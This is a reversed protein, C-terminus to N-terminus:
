ISWLFRYHLKIAQFRETPASCVTTIEASTNAGFTVNDVRSPAVTTLVVVYFLSQYM